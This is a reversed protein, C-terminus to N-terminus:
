AAEGIRWGHPRFTVEQHIRLLADRDLDDLCDFEEYICEILEATAHGVVRVISDDTLPRLTETWFYGQRHSSLGLASAYPVALRPYGTSMYMEQTTMCATQIWGSWRRLILAPRPKGTSVPDEKLNHVRVFAIAGDPVGSPDISAATITM